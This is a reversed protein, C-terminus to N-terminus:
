PTGVTMIAGKEGADHNLREPALDGGRELREAALRLAAAQLRPDRQNMTCHYGV